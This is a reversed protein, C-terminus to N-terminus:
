LVSHIHTSVGGGVEDGVNGVVKRGVVNAGVLDGVDMGVSAGM